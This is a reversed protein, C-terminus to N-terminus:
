HFPIRSDFCSSLSRQFVKSLERAHDLMNVLFMTNIFRNSM